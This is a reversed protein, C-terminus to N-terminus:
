WFKRWFTSLKTDLWRLVWSQFGEILLFWTRFPKLCVTTCHTDLVISSKWYNRTMRYTTSWAWEPEHTRFLDPMSSDPTSLIIVCTTSGLSFWMKRGCISSAMWSKKDMSFFSSPPGLVAVDSASGCSTLLAAGLVGHPSVGEQFRSTQTGSYALQCYSNAALM